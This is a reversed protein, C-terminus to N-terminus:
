FVLSMGVAMPVVKNGFEAVLAQEARWGTCHGPVILAPQFRHFGAVTQGIIAENAAGSLHFGGVVAHVPGGLLKDASAMVNVVGAHSCASFIVLGKGKVRVALYREDMILPDPEWSMEDATRVVHGPFGVEFETVREVEPSIYFAGGLLTAAERTVVPEAGARRLQEPSPVRELPLVRGSPLTIGRQRFMGPHLYCPVPRGGARGEQILQLAKTLGGAHDWHGHSLMVADVEGFGAGLRSGNYSMGFDVPGADFLVTRRSEGTVATVLLSLGHLACCQSDGRLEELGQGLLVQAEPLFAASAATRPISSLTDTKNDVLVLVELRDVATVM